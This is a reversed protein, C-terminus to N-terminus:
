EATPLKLPKIEGNTEEYRKVANALMDRLVKAEPWAMTVAAREEAVFGASNDGVKTATPVVQALRLRVDFLTWTVNVFNTYVEFIGDEHKRFETIVHEPKPMKEHENPSQGQEESM